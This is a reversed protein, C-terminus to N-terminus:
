TSIVLDIFEGKTFISWDEASSKRYAVYGMGLFSIYGPNLNCQFTYRIEEPLKNSDEQFNTFRVKHM